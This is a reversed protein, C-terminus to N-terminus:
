NTNVELYSGVADTHYPYGLDTNWGRNVLLTNEYMHYIEFLYCPPKGKMEQLNKFFTYSIYSYEENM